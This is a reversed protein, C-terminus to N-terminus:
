PEPQLTQNFTPVTNNSNTTDNTNSPCEGNPDITRCYIPDSTGATTTDDNGTTTYTTESNESGGLIKFIHTFKVITTKQLKLTRKKMFFRNFIKYYVYTNNFNHYKNKTIFFCLNM